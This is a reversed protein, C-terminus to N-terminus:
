PPGPLIEPDEDDLYPHPQEVNVHSPTTTTPTGAVALLTFHQHALFGIRLGNLVTLQLPLGDQRVCCSPLHHDLSDDFRSM